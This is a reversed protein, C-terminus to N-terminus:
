CLPRSIGRGSQNRKEPAPAHVTGRLETILNALQIKQFGSVPSGNTGPRWNQPGYHLRCGTPLWLRFSRITVLCYFRRVKPPTRLAEGTQWSALFSVGRTM